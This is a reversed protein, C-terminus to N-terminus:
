GPLHPSELCLHAKKAVQFAEFYRNEMPIWRSRFSELLEPDRRSLRRLQEEEKVSLFVTLAGLAQWVTEFAPHLSYSGEVIRVKAAPCILESFSGDSCHFKRYAFADARGVFPLVEEAFREYHVNGGPQALRDPTRLAFPLFFDDMRIVPAQWEEALANALTTKGSGCKGDVVIVGPRGMTEWAQVVPQVLNNM